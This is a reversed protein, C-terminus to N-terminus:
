EPISAGNLVIYRMNNNSVAVSGKKLAIKKSSASNQVLITGRSKKTAVNKTGYTVTQKYVDEVVMVEFPTGDSDNSSRVATFPTNTFAYPVQQTRVTVTAYAYKHWLYVGGVIIVIMVFMWLWVTRKASRKEEFIDDELPRYQKNTGTPKTLTEVMKVKEESSDKKNTVIDSIIM